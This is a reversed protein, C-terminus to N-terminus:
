AFFRPGCASHSSIFQLSTCFSGTSHLWHLQQSVVSRGSSHSCLGIVSTYLSLTCGATHKSTLSSLSLCPSWSTSSPTPLYMLPPEQLLCCQERAQVWVFVAKARACVCSLPCYCPHCSHLMSMHTAESLWLSKVHGTLGRRMRM